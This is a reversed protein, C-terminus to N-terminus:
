RNESCKVPLSKIWAKISKAPILSRQGIKLITIHGAAAEEYFKTKGIKMLALAEPMSYLPPNIKNQM